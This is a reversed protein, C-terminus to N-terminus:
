PPQLDLGGAVKGAFRDDRELIGAAIEGIGIPCGHFGACDLALDRLLVQLVKAQERAVVFNRDGVDIDEVPEGIIGAYGASAIRVLGDGIVVDERGRGIVHRELVVPNAVGKIDGQGGHFLGAAILFDDLTIATHM